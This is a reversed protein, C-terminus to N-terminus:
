RDATAQYARRVEEAIIRIGATVTAEDMAYSIRICEHMHRWDEQMGPFFYHGPLILVGRHKLREYLTQCTAPLGPFWLWLFFAGETKHIFYDVGALERHLLAIAHQVRSQYYPKIWENSLDLVKGTNFMELALAPGISGLALNIIGNMRAIAAAVEAPALIIGTRVGPLGFKSLSFCLITQESWPLTARTFIINPFPMGYANDIIFPIQLQQALGHLRQIEEDTLVNGTPNTPRSVCIAGIRRDVPLNEFAVHYKFTRDSSTEIDPKVATFLDDTLGVDAYGIYEPVMPFLIRKSIGDPYLGAFANFLMFFGSQSGATLVINEPGIEWQYHRRFFGAVSEIFRKEGKPADYNGLTEAFEQPHDLLWQLRQQFYAQVAPIHAPNGGGLMLFKGGGNMAEGLDEMLRVIGSDRTFRSAFNSFKMPM